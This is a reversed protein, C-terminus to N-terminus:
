NSPGTCTQNVFCLHCCPVGTGSHAAYGELHSAWLHLQDWVEHLAPPWFTDTHAKVQGHEEHCCNLWPCIQLLYQKKCNESQTLSWSWDPKHAACCLLHLPPEWVYWHQVHRQPCHQSPLRMTDSTTFDCNCNLVAPAKNPGAATQPLLLSWVRPGNSFLIPLFQPRRWPCQGLPCKFSYTSVM